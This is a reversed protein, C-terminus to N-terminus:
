GSVHGLVSEDNRGLCDTRLHIHKIVAFVVALRAWVTCAPWVEPECTHESVFAGNIQCHPFAEERHQCLPM